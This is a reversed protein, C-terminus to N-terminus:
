SGIVTQRLWALLIIQLAAPAAGVALDAALERWMTARGDRRRLTLTLVTYLMVLLVPIVATSVIALVYLVAPQNGLLALALLLALFLSAAAERPGSLLPRWVPSRWASQSFAALLMVGLALGAGLGTLLRVTNHPPYLHPAGLDFLLANVGDLGMAAVLGGWLWLQPRSPFAGHRVRGSLVALTLVLAAGLYLGSCRACLPLPRDAILFGHGPLRHCVTGALWDAAGLLGDGHLRHPEAVTWLGLLGLSLLAVAPPLLRSTRLSPM